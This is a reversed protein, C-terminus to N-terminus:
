KRFIRLLTKLKKKSSIKFVDDANESSVSIQKDGSFYDLTFLVANESSIVLYWYNTGDCNRFGNRTLFKKSLPKKM